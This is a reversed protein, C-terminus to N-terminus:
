RLPTAAAFEGRIEYPLCWVQRGSSNTFHLRSKSKQDPNGDAWFAFFPDTATSPRRAYSHNFPSKETIPKKRWTRGENRSEWLIMEGGTGHPQPKQGTPGIVTWRDDWVYLSGMDYNHGSTTIRHTLWRGHKWHMVTWERPNGKPGPEGARSTVFLLIPNGERDFNVDCTFM